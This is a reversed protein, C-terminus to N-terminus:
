TVKQEDLAKTLEECKELEISSKSLLDTVRISEIKAKRLISKKLSLETKLACAEEV